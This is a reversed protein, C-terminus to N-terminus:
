MVSGVPSGVQRGENLIGQLYYEAFCVVEAGGEKARKVFDACDALNARLTEFPDEEGTPYSLKSNLPCTQALAVRLTNSTSMTIHVTFLYIPVTDPFSETVKRIHTM